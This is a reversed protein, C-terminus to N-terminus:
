ICVRHLILTRRKMDDPRSGIEEFIGPALMQSTQENGDNVQNEKSKCLFLGDM